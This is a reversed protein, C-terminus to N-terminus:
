EKDPKQDPKDDLRLAVFRLGTSGEVLLLVTKRDAEAAAEVKEAVERPTSVSEQSVEVIVDGPRIGKESAAGAPDVDTVVVGKAGEALQYTEIHKADIEALSMGLRQLEMDKGGPTGQAGSEALTKEGEELSGIEVELEMDKGDRWVKVPVTNGVETDAVIRPLARMEDVDKGNFELIVDRRQIGAKEAPGEAIVDAVLAGRADDLGLSEALEETVTQIRVGLWGRRVQGHEILQRIVPQATSTPIAFGIGISGGSPSFIATNIGIVEGDLNFMPGGSNGRNISADTQLFNDYPGAHIDRGRASIIGATVTGGFGFPNGIAVVWDGVRSKESDGFRVAFLETPPDVKLVAIDTKSDRGIVEAQLRTEDHLVVTVEDADQIVHNNTVIYGGADIIFGSGLSTSQRMQPPQGRELFEKFFEEFPSGPPVPLELGPQGELSQTTSVNVVSPLLRDALEAFSEPATRATSARPGTAVIFAALVALGIGVWRRAIAAPVGRVQAAGAPRRIIASPSVPAFLQNAM